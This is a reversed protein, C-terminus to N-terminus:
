YPMLVLVREPAGVVPVVGSRVVRLLRVDVECGRPVDVLVADRLRLGACGRRSKKMARDCAYADDQVM